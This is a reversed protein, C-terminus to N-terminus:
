SQNECSEASKFVGGAVNGSSRNAASKMEALATRKIGQRLPGHFIFEGDIWASFESSGILQDVCKISSKSAQGTHSHIQKGM